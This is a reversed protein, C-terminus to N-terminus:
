GDFAAKYSARALVTGLDITLAYASSPAGNISIRYVLTAVLTSAPTASYTCATNKCTADPASISPALPTVSGVRMSGSLQIGVNNGNYTYNGFLSGFDVSFDSTLTKFNTLSKFTNTTKDWYTLTGASRTFSPNRGGVGAEAYASEALGTVTILSNGSVWGPPPTDGGSTLPLGGLAVTGLTRTSQATVCGAGSATPCATGGATSVRSVVSRANTPSEAISAITFNTGFNVPSPFYHRFTATSGARRGAGWSCPQNTVAMATGTMDLCTSATSSTRADLQGTDGNSPTALLIGGPGSLGLLTGSSQSVSATSVGASVSSPDNDAAVSSSAGGLTSPSPDNEDVRSTTVLGGLKTVQESNLTSSLSFLGLSLLTGSFGSIDSVGDTSNLLNIGGKTLGADGNFSAQCAGAYPHTASSLCRSPSFGVSRQVITKTGKSARSSFTTIVTLNFAQSTASPRSVYASITYVVNEVTQTRRHPLLPAVSAGTTQLVLPENIGAIGPNFTGTTGTGCTGSLTIRSDTTVDSCTMGSQITAYDIARFQEMTATALASAQQRQKALGIGSISALFTTGLVGMVLLTVFM